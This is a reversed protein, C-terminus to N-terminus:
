GLLMELLLAGGATPRIVEVVIDVQLGPRLAPGSLIPRYDVLSLSDARHSQVESYIGM